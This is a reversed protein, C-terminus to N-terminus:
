SWGRTWTRSPKRFRWAASRSNVPREGCRVGHESAPRSAYLARGVTRARQGRLVSVAGPDGARNQRAAGRRRSRLLSNSFPTAGVRAQVHIGGGAAYGPSFSLGSEVLRALADDLQAPPLPAVAAVLEHSFERGITAGIQQAVEKVPMFRDLRAMLPERLAAPIAIEHATGAYEYHDGADRLGDNELISKTLEEVFLPVGDTRTLIKNLSM